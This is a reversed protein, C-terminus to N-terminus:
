FDGEEYRRALHQENVRELHGLPEASPSAVTMERKGLAGEVRSVYWGAWAMAGRASSAACYTTLIAHESAANILKRFTEGSWLEPNVDPSFPDHFIYDARIGSTDFDDFSGVFLSLEINEVPTFRNIGPTCSSFISILQDVIGPHSLFKNYNLSEALEPQIPFAEVSHYAIDARSGSELYEDALLMFNLGTGFGTELITLKEAGPMKQELGNKEFFLHRSEAVSGGPNHYHQQFQHSYLTHSGDGTIQLDPSRESEPETM